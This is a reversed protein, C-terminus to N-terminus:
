EILNFLRTGDKLFFSEPIFLPFYANEVGKKKLMADLINKINEWIAYGRPMIVMCGRVPSHEALKAAAIVDSYWKSYDDSRKAIAKVSKNNKQKTNNQKIKM